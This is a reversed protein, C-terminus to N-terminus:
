YEYKVPIYPEVYISGDKLMAVEPFEIKSDVPRALSKSISLLSPNLKLAAVISDKNGSVGAFARGRLEGLVIINGEAFIEAGMHVDGIIVVNGPYDIVQGGRLTKKIFKTNGEKTGNFIKKGKEANIDKKEQKEQKEQIKDEILDNFIIETFDIENKLPKKLQNKKNDDLNIPYTTIYVTNGSYFSKLPKLKELLGNLLNDMSNFELLNIIINLGNQNGKIKIAEKDVM